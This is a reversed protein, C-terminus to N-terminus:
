MALSIRPSRDEATPDGVESMAHELGHVDSRALMSGWSKRFIGGRVTDLEIRRKPTLLPSSTM